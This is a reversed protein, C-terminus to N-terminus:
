KTNPELHEEFDSEQYMGNSTSSTIFIQFSPCVFKRNMFFNNTWDDSLNLSRVERDSLQHTSWWVM